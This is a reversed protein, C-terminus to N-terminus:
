WGWKRGTFEGWACVAACQEDTLKQCNLIELLLEGVSQRDLIELGIHLRASHPFANRLKAVVEEPIEKFYLAPSQYPPKNKRPM